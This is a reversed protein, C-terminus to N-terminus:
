LLHSHRQHQTVGGDQRRTAHLVQHLNNAAAKEDKDPWLLDMVQERHMRHGEALVLLKVLNAAKKLSWSSEELTQSGVTLSFDGLMRARVTEFVEVPGERRGSSPREVIV